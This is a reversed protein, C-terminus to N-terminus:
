EDSAEECTMKAREQPTLTKKWITKGLHNMYALTTNKKGKPINELVFLSKNKTGINKIHTYEAETLKGLQNSWLGWLEKQQYKIILHNAQEHLVEVAELSVMTSDKVPKNKPTNKPNVTPTKPTPPQLFNVFQWTENPLQVLVLSDKWFLIKKYQFPTKERSQLDIIGQKDNKTAIFFHLSDKLLPKLQTTSIPEIKINKKAHFLGFKANALLHQTGAFANSIGDYKPALLVKGTTDIIGYKGNQNVNILENDLLYINNFQNTTITKGNPQFLSIKGNKEAYIYEEAANTPAKEIRINRFGTLDILKTNPQHFIALNCKKNEYLLVNKGVFAVSDYQYPRIFKGETNMLGWKKGKKLAIIQYGIEVKQYTTDSLKIGATNFIHWLSDKECAWATQSNGKIQSFEIPLLFENQTSFLGMREDLGIKLFQNELLETFDYKPLIDTPSQLFETLLKGLPLVAYLNAQQFLVFEGKLSIDTFKCDTIIKGNMTALGWRKNRKIKLMQANLVEIADYQLPLIEFGATHFLGKKANKVVLWLDKSLIEIQDYQAPLVIKKERNMLGVQEQQFFILLPEEISQCLHEQPINDYQFDFVQRGQEDIYGFKQEQLVPVLQLTDQALCQALKTRLPNQPYRNLFYTFGNKQTVLTQLWAWAKQTAEAQPFERVFNEYVEITHLAVSYYFIENAAQNVFQNQPYKLLFNFYSQYTKEQTEKEFILKDRQTIAQPIQTALPYTQIFYEYGEITKKRQAEQWALAHLAETAQQVQMAEAYFEIFFKWKELSNHIQAQEFAQQEIQTKLKQANPVDINAKQWEKRQKEPTKAFWQLAQKICIYATDIHYHPNEKDSFYLAYVYKAGANLSDKKLEKDLLARAETYKKKQLYKLASTIRDAYTNQFCVLIFLIGGFLRIVAKKLYNM